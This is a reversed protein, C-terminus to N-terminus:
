LGHKDDFTGRIEKEIELIIEEPTSAGATIGIKDINKFWSNNLETKDQILYSKENISKSIEYLKKSNSSKNDGVILVMDVEGALKEVAKQREYTAGCIKSFIEVNEYNEEIYEKIKFFLEKNLTTQTLLCYNKEKEISLETFEEFSNVIIVDNGFSVIGRVEPHNKDGIFIIKKGKIEAEVLAKRIREVFVCTADYIKVGERELIDYIEKTTGHARIIVTDKKSLKVNKNKLDEESLTIFGKKEMDSTVNKNHVLMGLIFLNGNFNKEEIIKNCLNIAGAVGFCFGMKEARKIEM